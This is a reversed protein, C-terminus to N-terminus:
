TRVQRRAGARLRRPRCVPGRAGKLGKAEPWTNGMASTLAGLRLHVSKSRDRGQGPCNTAATTGPPGSLNTAGVVRDRRQPWRRSRAPPSLPRLLLVSGQCAFRGRVRTVTVPPFRSGGRDPAAPQSGPLRQASASCSGPRAPGIPEVARACCGAARAGAATGSPGDTLHHRQHGDHKGRLRLDPSPGPRERRGQHVAPQRPDQPDSPHSQSAGDSGVTTFTPRCPRSSSGRSHDSTHAKALTIGPGDM